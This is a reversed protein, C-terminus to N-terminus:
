ETVCVNSCAGLAEIETFVSDGEMLFRQPKRAAGIGGPTGTFILDGPELTCFRSIDSVLAVPDFLLDETNAEQMLEDNVRCSIRLRPRVGLEDTTVLHPGLPATRDVTKGALWQDTRLQLDRASVDNGITFGAIAHEAEAPSLRSARAGIVTVLEAEWDMRTSARPLCIPENAGILANAFKAFLTPHEPLPKGIELIHTRYNLGVCVIKGPRTVLPALRAAAPIAEGKLRSVDRLSIAARLLAGVDEFPLRLFQGDQLCAATTGGGHFLTAFRM